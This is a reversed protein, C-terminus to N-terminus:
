SKRYSSTCSSRVISGAEFRAGAHSNRQPYLKPEENGNRNDAIVKGINQSSRSGHAAEKQKLGVAKDVRPM